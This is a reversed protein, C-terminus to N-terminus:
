ILEIANVTGLGEFAAGFIGQLTADAGAPAAVVNAYSAM